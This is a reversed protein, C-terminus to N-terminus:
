RIVASLLLEDKSLQGDTMLTRAALSDAPEGALYTEMVIPPAPQILSGITVFTIVAVSFGLVLRRSLQEVAKSSVLREEEQRFSRVVRATFDSPLRYEAASVVGSSIRRLLHEEKRCADCGKLHMEVERREGEQLEKDIYASLLSQVTRHDM